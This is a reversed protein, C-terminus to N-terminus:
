GHKVSKKTHKTNKHAASKKLQAGPIDKALTNVKANVNHDFTSQQSIRSELGRDYSAQNNLRKTLTGVTSNFEEELSDYATQQSQLQGQMTTLQSGIANMAGSYDAGGSATGGDSTGSAQQYDQAASGSSAATSRRWLLYTLMVGVVGTIVLITQKRKDAKKSTPNGGSTGGHESHGLFESM